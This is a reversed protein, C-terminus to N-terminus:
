LYQRLIHKVLIRFETVEALLEEAESKKIVLFDRYDSELRKNFLTSFLKAWRIDIKNEKIFKLGFLTRM